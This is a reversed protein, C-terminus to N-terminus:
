GVYPFGTMFLVIMIPVIILLSALILNGFGMWASFGQVQGVGKCAIVLSWIGLVMSLLSYVFFVFTELSTEPIATGTFFDGGFLLLAPITVILIVITPVNAWATATRITLPSGQGNLGKGTWFVLYSFIYLGIIGILPGAILTILLGAVPSIDPIFFPAQQQGPFQAIGSLAALVLVLYTPNTDVLKQVTARPQLWITKFPSGTLDETIASADKQEQLDADPTSYIDPEKHM